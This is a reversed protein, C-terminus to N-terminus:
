PRTRRTLRSAGTSMRWYSPVSRRRPPPALATCLMACGPRPAAARPRPPGRRGRGGGARAAARARCRPGRRRGDIGAYTVGTFVRMRAPPTWEVLCCITRMSLVVRRGSACGRAGAASAASRPARPGPRRRAPSRSRSRAARARGPPPPWPAPRPPAADGDRHVRAVRQEAEAAHGRDRGVLGLDLGREAHGDAVVAALQLRGPARQQAPQLHRGHEDGAAAVAHRQELGAAGVACMGM